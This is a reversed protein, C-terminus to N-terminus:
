QCAAPNTPLGPRGSVLEKIDAASLARAYVRAEDIMGPWGLNTAGARNGILVALSSNFQTAPIDTTNTGRLEGNVYVEM